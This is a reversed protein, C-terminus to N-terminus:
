QLRCEGLYPPRCCTYRMRQDPSIRDCFLRRQEQQPSSATQRSPTGPSSWGTSGPSSSPGGGAGVTPQSGGYPSNSGPVGGSGPGTTNGPPTVPPPRPSGMSRDRRHGGAGKSGSITGPPMLTQTRNFTPARDIRFGSNFQPGRSMRATSGFYSREGYRYNFYQAKRVHASTVDRAPCAACGAAPFAGAGVPLLMATVLVLFSCAKGSGIM